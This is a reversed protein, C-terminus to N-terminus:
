YNTLVLDVLEHLTQDTRQHAYQGAWALGVDSTLGGEVYSRAMSNLTMLWLARWLRYYDVEVQRPVVGGHRAYEALFDEWPLLKVVTHYAYGLDQAASGVGATEWDLLASLEEDKVLMNHCGVDRHIVVPKGEAYDLNEKLWAFGLEMSISPPSAARWKSEFEAIDQSMRTRASINAGPLPYGISEPPVQHIRALHRALNLGFTRSPATVDLADGINGGEVRSLVLFAAGIASTDGTVAFPQPVPVGAEFMAKILAFEDLVTSQVPSAAKDIRLVIQPPLQTSHSLDVFVTQKSFGGPIAKITGIELEADAPFTSRLYSKLGRIQEASLPESADASAPPPASAAIVAAHRANQMDLEIRAIQQTLTKAAAGPCTALLPAVRSLVPQAQAYSPADHLTRRLEPALADGGDIRSLVALMERLLEQYCHLAELELQPLTEVEVTLEALMQGVYHAVKQEMGPERPRLTTTLQAQMMKLYPALPSKM